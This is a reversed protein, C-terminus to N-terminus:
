LTWKRATRGSPPISSHSSRHCISVEGSGTSMASGEPLRTTKARAREVKAAQRPTEVAKTSRPSQPLPVPAPKQGLANLARARVRSVDAAEDAAAPNEQPELAQRFSHEGVPDAFELGLGLNYFVVHREQGLWQALFHRFPVYDGDVRTYDYVQGHLIALASEGEQLREELEQAWEPLTKWPGM